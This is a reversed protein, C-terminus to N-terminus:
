LSIRQVHKNRQYDHFSVNGMFLCGFALQLIIRKKTTWSADLDGELTLPEGSYGIGYNMTGKLCKSSKSYGDM